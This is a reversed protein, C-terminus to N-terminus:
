DSTETTIQFTVGYKDTVTGYAPSWFTEQLPMRVHGDKELAEFIQRSHSPDNTTICISVNDGMRVANGPFTDSLMLDTEGVKLLAHAIREKAEEPMPFKPDAPMDGFKQIHIVKADLAQEYFAIAEKVTGDLMLYPNLRLAM